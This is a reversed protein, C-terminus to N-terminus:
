CRRITLSHTSGISTADTVPNKERILEKGQRGRSMMRALIEQGIYCGKDEHVLHSLGCAYPHNASTIESGPHPIMNDIRWDTFEAESMTVDPEKGYPSIILWGRFTQVKTVGNEVDLNETSLLISNSESADSIQVDQGLIRPILHSLIANKNPGFGVLAIFSGMDIVDVMDIIKAISNTFVTTCTGEIKNTSLGNVFAIADKGRVILVYGDLAVVGM